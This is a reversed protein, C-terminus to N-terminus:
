RSGLIGMLRGYSEDPLSQIIRVLKQDGSKLVRKRILGAIREGAQVEGEDLDIGRAIAGTRLAEDLTIDFEHGFSYGCAHCFRATMPNIAGCDGCKKVREPPVPLKYGCEPCESAELSCEHGCVAYQKSKPKPGPKRAAPSMEDEVRRAYEEFIEFSPMIVYAWTDDNNGNARVVRGIAQRFALETLANPLYILVRLRKIDVGESVM